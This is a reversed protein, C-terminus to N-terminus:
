DKLAKKLENLTSKEMKAMKKRIKTTKEGKYSFKQFPLPTCRNKPSLIAGGRLESM